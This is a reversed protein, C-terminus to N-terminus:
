QPSESPASVDDPPRRCLAAFSRLAISNRALVERMEPLCLVRLEEEREATYISDLGAAYGPHCGFETWGTPLAEIMARLREPSIGAPFPEGEGTQGYFNGNYAIANSCSRVPIGLQQAKASLISRAPDSQHVHQHSDLHTPACGLLRAFADLQRNLEECVQDADDADIVQYAAYWEGDAYRWEAAEFHLGISLASRARGYRAAEEAAPYRVMLSASTVIGNEHAEIIGRNIGNTLGFDDANVILCREGEAACM